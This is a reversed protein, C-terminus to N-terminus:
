QKEGIIKPYTYVILAEFLWYGKGPGPPLLFGVEYSSKILALLCKGESTASM